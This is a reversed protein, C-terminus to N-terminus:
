NYCISYICNWLKDGCPVSTIKVITLFFFFFVINNDRMYIGHIEEWNYIRIKKRSSVQGSSHRQNPQQKIDTFLEFVYVCVCVCVYICM